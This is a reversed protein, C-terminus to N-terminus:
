SGSFSITSVLAPTVIAFILTVLVLVFAHKFGSSVKEEAVKGAVIGTIMSQVVLPPVFLRVFEAEAFKLGAVSAMDAMFSLMILTSVVLIVGGIYPILMLPRLAMKKENELQQVSEGFTALTELTEPTGGGVDVADVLLFLNMRAVWGRIREAISQSIKSLPLGWGIQNSLIKLHPSFSGFNRTSLNAICREPSMGTKRIEVFDREFSTLGDLIKSGERSYRYNIVSLVGFYLLFTLSIGLSPEFGPQLGLSESLLVLYRYTPIVQALPPSMSPIVFLVLGALLLPLTYLMSKYSRWDNLPYSPQIVDAFYIFMAGTVPLLIYAFVVFSGVSFIPLQAPILKSVIFLSYVGLALLVTVTIFGEMLMAVREGMARFKAARGEFFTQTKRMLYHTVDGGATTTSAYGLVFEKYEKSPLHKASNQMATVPDIGFAKVDIDMQASAERVQPLLEVEKLREFSKIASIGGTSMVTIYAAAYPVETDLSSARNKAAAAPSFVMLALVALPINIPLLIAYAGLVGWLVVAMIDSVIVSLLLLFGIESAYAEPHVKKNAAKLSDPLKSFIRLIPIGLWRFYSYSFAQLDFFRSPRKM